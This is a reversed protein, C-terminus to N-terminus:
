HKCKAHAENFPCNIMSEEQQANALKLADNEIRMDYMEHILADHDETHMWHNFDQQQRECKAHLSENDRELQGITKDQEDREAKVDLCENAFHDRQKEILQCKELLSDRQKEVVDRGATQDMYKRELECQAKKLADYGHLVHALECEMKCKIGKTEEYAARLKDFENKYYDHAEQVHALEKKIPELREHAVRNADLLTNREQKFSTCRANALLLEEELTFNHDEVRRLKNMLGEISVVTIDDHAM